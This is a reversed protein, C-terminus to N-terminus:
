FKNVIKNETKGSEFQVQIIYLGPSLDATSISSSSSLDVKKVITGNSHYIAAQSLGKNSIINLEDEFPIPYLALENNDTAINANPEGLRSIIINDLNWQWENANSAYVRITHLGETLTITNAAIQTEYTEWAGTNTVNDTAQAVGDVLLQIQANSEPTSIKYSVNYTSPETVNITYEAYDGANVWNIVTGADLVGTGAVNADWSSNPTTGNTLNYNEAEITFVGNVSNIVNPVPDPDVTGDDNVPKYVRIWDVKMVHDDPYNQIETDTPYRGAVANWDQVEINIILKMAKTIGNGGAYRYKDIVNFDTTQNVITGDPDKYSVTNNSLTRVWEGNIYYELHNPDKWYVGITSYEGAWDSRGTESYWTGNVGEEDRPQYDKYDATNRNAFMHHSLHISKAFWSNDAGGRTASGYNECIDIEEYDDDSIMWINNAFCANAIKVRTEVFVPYVVHEKSVMCGMQTAKINSYYVGDSSNTFAKYSNDRTAKINLHGSSVSVNGYIWETPGPGNWSNHWFNWWKDNIYTGYSVAAFDYNFDDSMNDQLEWVKGTGADAGVPFSDWEYQSYATISMTFVM